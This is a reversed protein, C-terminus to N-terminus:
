DEDILVAYENGREDKRVERKYGSKVGTSGALTRSAQEQHKKQLNTLRDTVTQIKAIEENNINILEGIPDGQINEGHEIATEIARELGEQYFWSHSLTNPHKKILLDAIAHLRTDLRVSFVETKSM